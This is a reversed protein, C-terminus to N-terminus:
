LGCFFVTHFLTWVSVNEANVVRDMELGQAKTVTRLYNIHTEFIKKEFEQSSAYSRDKYMDVVARAGRQVFSTCPSCVYKAELMKKGQHFGDMVTSMDMYLLFGTCLNDFFRRSKLIDMLESISKAAATSITPSCSITEQERRGHRKVGDDLYWKALWDLLVLKRQCPSLLTKATKYNEVVDNNMEMLDQLEDEFTVVYPTRYSCIIGVIEKPIQRDDMELVFKCATTDGYLPERMRYSSIIDVLEEPIRHDDMELVFEYKTMEGILSKKEEKKRRKPDPTPLPTNEKDQTDKGRKRKGLISDTDSKSKIEKDDETLDIIEIEM